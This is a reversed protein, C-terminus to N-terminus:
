NILCEELPHYFREVSEIMDEISVTNSELWMNIFNQFDIIDICGDKDLDSSHCQTSLPNFEDCDSGGCLISEAFDKDYDKCSTIKYLVPRELIPIVTETNNNIESIIHWLDPKIGQGFINQTTQTIWGRDIINALVIETSNEIRFLTPTYNAFGTPWTHNSEFAAANGGYGYVHIKSSNKILLVPHNGESKLGFIKINSSNKIEIKSESKVHEPNLLYFSINATDKILMERYNKNSSISSGQMNIIVGSGTLVINSFRGKLPVPYNGQPMFGQERIRETDINKIISNTADWNIAYSAYAEETPLFGIDLLTVNNANNTDFVPKASSIDSFFSSDPIISSLHSEAGFIFSNDDAYITNNIKYYGKPFFVIDNNYIANQISDTDDNVGDGKAGYDKVSVATEWLVKSKFDHNDLLGKPLTSNGIVLYQDNKVGNVYIPYSYNYYTGDNFFIRWLSEMAFEKVLMNSSSLQLLSNNNPDVVQNIFGEFYVNKLYLGRDSQIPISNSYNTSLISDVLSISCLNHNWYNRTKCGSLIGVASKNVSINAGVITLTEFGWYYIGASKQNTLKINMLMPTATEYSVLGYEGGNIEIDSIVTAGLSSNIGMYGDVLDIKVDEIGAGQAGGIIIATAGVNNKSVLLDIGKFVQNFAMGNNITGSIDSFSQYKIMPKSNSVDGFGVSNEKLIIKPKVGMKSGALVCSGYEESILSDTTREYLEKDCSLTDSILYTGSPFYTVLMHEYSFDIASQIASTSDYSGSSDANFPSATVDVFGKEIFQQYPLNPEYISMGDRVPFLVSQRVGDIIRPVLDSNELEKLTINDYYTGITNHFNYLHVKINNTLDTTKFISRYLKWSSDVLKTNKFNKCGWACDIMETSNKYFTSYFNQDNQVDDTRALYSFLYYTDPKVDVIQSFYSVPSSSDTVITKLSDGHLGGSLECDVGGFSLCLNTWNDFGQDFNPNLLLNNKVNNTNVESDYSFTWAGENIGWVKSDFPSIELGWFNIYKGMNHNVNTWTAGNDKSLFIGDSQGKFGKKAAWIIGEHNPDIEIYNLGQYDYKKGLSPNNIINVLNGNKYELLGFLQIAVYFHLSESHPDIAVDYPGNGALTVNLSSWTTGADKSYALDYGVSVNKRFGIVFNGDNPHVARIDFGENVPNWTVGNDQSIWDHTYVINSNNNNIELFRIYKETFAKVIEWSQGRDDSRIINHETWGGMSAIITDGEIDADTCSHVSAVNNLPNISTIIKGGDSSYKLGFDILCFLMDTENIFEIDMVRAGTYNNGSYHWSNGGDTTQMINSSGTQGIVRNSDTPHFEFPMAYYHGVDLFEEQNYDTVTKWSAGLDDSYYPLKDVLDGGRELPVLILRLPETHSIEIRTYILKKNPEYINSIHTIGNDIEVFNVGGDISKFTSNGLVIFVMNYDLPNIAADWIPNNGSAPHNFLGLGIEFTEGTTTDVQYFGINSSAYIRNKNSKSWDIDILNHGLLSFNFFSEGGDTSKLIGYPGGVFITQSSVGNYSDEDILIVDGADRFIVHLPGSIPGTFNIGGDTSKYIGDYDSGAPNSNSAYTGILFVINEDHPDSKVDHGGYFLENRAVPFWSAGTDTSKWLRQTDVLAYIVSTNKANWEFSHIGQMGEGALGRVKQWNNQFANQTWYIDDPDLCDQPCSKISEDDGCVNDITCTSITEFIMNNISGDDPNNNGYATILNILLLCLLSLILYKLYKNVGM